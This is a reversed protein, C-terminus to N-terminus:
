KTRGYVANCIVAIVAADSRDADELRDLVAAEALARPVKLSHLARLRERAWGQHGGAGCRIPPHDDLHQDAIRRRIAADYSARRPDRLIHDPVKM